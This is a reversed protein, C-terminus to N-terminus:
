SRTADVAREYAQLLRPVIQQPAFCEAWRRGEKRVKERLTPNTIVQQIASALAEPNNEEISLALSGGAEECATGKLVIVPTGVALAEVVPMGFGEIESVYVLALAGRLLVAVQQRDLASLAIWRLHPAHHLQWWKLERYYGLKIPGASVLAPARRGMLALARLLTHINKRPEVRGVYVLYESPLPVEGNWKTAECNLFEEDCIPSIVEVPKNEAKPFHHLLRRRTYESITIILHADRVAQGVKQRYIWRDHWRYLAPEDLFIVDHITVVTPITKSLGTPVENSLGHFVDPQLRRVQGACGWRRWARGGDVRWVGEPMRITARPHSEVERAISTLRVTPTFLELQADSYRLLASILRRSYEGLGTTNNFARKADIAIKM